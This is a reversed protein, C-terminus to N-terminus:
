GRGHEVDDLLEVLRQVGEEPFANYISARLGGVSRHGKLGSLGREEARALMTAELERTAGRFTINMMSRSAPQAHGKWLTSQDLFDYVVKAKRTNREAMASLGGQERIWSVVEGIIYVGFTNPTNHMSQEKAYTRYQALPPLDVAGTELFDKRAIVLSIGSPGLNKQAGAYILAHNALDLPRSFIDSSADCVLPAPAVPPTAWQTGYITENSTYHVYRPATSFTLERPVADFAPAGSCAVHVTGVRRAEEIAKGSWIGTDCYDATQGAGLFNQPVMAFHHTAGATVFLIAYADGIGGVERIAAETRELVRGFEPGRHSHELIGIGSGDLDLLAGQANRLVQEPLAAPGSSFNLKRPM